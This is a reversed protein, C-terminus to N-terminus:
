AEGGTGRQASAGAFERRGRSDMGGQGSTIQGLKVLWGGAEACGFVVGQRALYVRAQGEHQDDDDATVRRWPWSSRM